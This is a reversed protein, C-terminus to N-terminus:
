MKRMMNLFFDLIQFLCPLNLYVCLVTFESYKDSQADAELDQSEKLKELQDNQYRLRMRVAEGDKNAAVIESQLGERHHDDYDNTTTTTTSLSRSNSFLSKSVIVFVFHSIFVFFDILIKVISESNNNEVSEFDRSENSGMEM